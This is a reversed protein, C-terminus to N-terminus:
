RDLLRYLTRRHMGLARAAAAKNGDFRRITESVLHKQVADYDGSLPITLKLQCDSDVPDRLAAIAEIERGSQTGASRGRLSVARDFTALLGHRTIPKFLVDCAGLRWLQAVEEAVMRTAMVICAPRKTLALADALVGLGSAGELRLEVFLVDYACTRILERAEDRSRCTRCSLQPGELNAVIRGSNVEDPDVVLVQLACSDAM